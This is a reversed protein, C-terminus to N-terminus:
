GRWGSSWHLVQKLASRGAPATGSTELRANEYSRAL